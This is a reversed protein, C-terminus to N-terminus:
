KPLTDEFECQGSVCDLTLAQNCAPVPVLPCAACDIQADSMLNSVFDNVAVGAVPFYNCGTECANRPVFVVCDSPTTCGFKYKDAMQSRSAIYDKEGTACDIMLPNAVCSPCCQGPLTQPRFGNACAIGICPVDCSSSGADVTGVCVPCCGGPPVIQTESPGCILLPCKLDCTNGVGGNSTGAHGAKGAVAGTGSAGTSGGATTGDEITVARGGCAAALVACAALAGLFWTKPKSIRYKM